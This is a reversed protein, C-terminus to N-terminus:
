NSLTCLFCTWCKHESEQCTDWSFQDLRPIRAHLSSAERVNETRSRRDVERVRVQWPATELHTQDNESVPTLFRLWTHMAARQMWYGHLKKGKCAYAICTYIWSSFFIM